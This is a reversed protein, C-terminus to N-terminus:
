TTHRVTVGTVIPQGDRLVARFYRQVPAPLGQLERADYRSVAPPLRAPEVQGILVQTTEAWRSSGYAALGFLAAVLTGLM